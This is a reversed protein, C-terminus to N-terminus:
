ARAIIRRPHHCFNGDTDVGYMTRHSNPPHTCVLPAFRSHFAPFANPSVMLATKKPSTTSPDDHFACQDFYIFRAGSLQQVGLWSPHDFQSAHRERGEIPFRSGAARSPPSEAVFVGGNSHVAAMVGAALESMLNSQVVAHPLTGDERPIGLVNDLDRVPKSHEVGPKGRLVSFTKCPISVFAGLCRESQALRLVEVRVPSYTLDHDYGGVKTDINVVPAGGLRAVHSALDGERRPGSGLYLWYAGSVPASIAM